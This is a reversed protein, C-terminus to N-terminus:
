LRFSRRESKGEAILGLAITAFIIGWDRVGIPTLGVGLAILVLHLALLATVYPIGLGMALLAGCIVEFLGNTLVIMAPPLHIFNVIWEPVLAVWHVGDFLQSFGFWLFVSALGFRLVLLGLQTRTM